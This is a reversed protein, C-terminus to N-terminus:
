KCLWRHSAEQGLTQPKMQGDRKSKGDSCCGNELDTTNHKTHNYGKQGETKNL